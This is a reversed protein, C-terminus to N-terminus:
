ELQEVVGEVVIHHQTLAFKFHAFGIGQQAKGTAVRAFQEVDDVQEGIGGGLAGDNDVIGADGLAQLLVGHGVVLFPLHM